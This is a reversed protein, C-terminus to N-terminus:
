DPEPFIEKMLQRFGSISTAARRLMARCVHIRGSRRVAAPRKSRRSPSNRCRRPRQHVPGANGASRRGHGQAPDIVQYTLDRHWSKNSTASWTSCRVAIGIGITRPGHKLPGRRGAAAGQGSVAPCFEDLDASRVRGRAEPWAGTLLQEHVLMKAGERYWDHQGIFRRATMRGTREIGYLYYFLWASGARIAISRFIAIWGPWGTKWRSTPSNRAAAACGHRGSGHRRRREVRRCAIIMSAIGANTM